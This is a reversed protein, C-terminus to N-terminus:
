YEKSICFFSIIGIAVKRFLQSTKAMKLRADEIKIKSKLRLGKKAGCHVLVRLLREEAVASSCYKELSQVASNAMTKYVDPHHMAVEYSKLFAQYLSEWNIRYRMTRLAYRPDHAWHTRELSASVVFANNDTIYDKMASHGPAVAPKGASMFEMLPLNQGEGHASNVVYTTAKILEAFAQDELHGLIIIVRCRFPTSKFIETTLAGCAEEFNHHITKIILTANEIERFAWIFGKVLDPWNKRNDNTNLVCTYIVGELHLCNCQDGDKKLVTLEKIYNDRSNPHLYPTVCGNIDIVKENGQLRIKSTCVPSKDEEYFKNFVDWVPAPISWIPFNRGMEKKVASVAFTSHTIACGHRRFVCRWDNRSESSWTDTPITLYEWAFISITPCKLDVETKFPPTFSLFLCAEKKLRCAEYLADVEQKPNEVKIVEGYKKLVPLFNKLVFYYSYDPEGVNALINEDTNACHVIILMNEIM